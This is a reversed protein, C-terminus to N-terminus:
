VEEPGLVYLILAPMVHGVNSHTNGGVPERGGSRGPVSPGSFIIYTNMLFAVFAYVTQDLPGLFKDRLSSIYLLTYKSM